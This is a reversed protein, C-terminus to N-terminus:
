NLSNATVFRLNKLIHKDPILKPVEKKIHRIMAPKNQAFFQDSYQKLQPGIFLTIIAIILPFIFSWVVKQLVPEKIKRIEEILGEFHYQTIWSDEAFGSNELKEDVIKQIQGIDFVDEAVVVRAAAAEVVMRDRPLGHYFETMKSITNGFDAWSRVQEIGKFGTIFDNIPNKALSAWM